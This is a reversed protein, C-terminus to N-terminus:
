FAPLTASVFFPKLSNAWYHGKTPNPEAFASPEIGLKEYYDDRNSHTSYFRGNIIAGYVLSYKYAEMQRASWYGELYSFVWRPMKAKTLEAYIESRRELMTDHTWGYHEAASFLGALRAEAWNRKKLTRETM